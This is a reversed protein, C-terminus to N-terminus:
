PKSVLEPLAPAPPMEFIQVNGANLVAFRKGSPSLAFNGGGDLTPSAPLTLETKGDAVDFVRIVQGRIDSADLPMTANVPHSVDLTSLAARRGDASRAVMPWIRTPPVPTQWLVHKTRSMATMVRGGYDTCEMSLVLGPALAELSPNCTSDVPLLTQTNGEFTQFTLLWSRGDGRLAAYYGDGDLPLHRVNGVRSFLLVSRDKMRLIRILDQPDANKSEADAHSTSTQAASPGSTHNSESDPSGLSRASNKPEDKAPETSNAMLFQQDPGLELYNVPGPFRLFSKLHLSADGIQIDNRDRLLFTGDNLAWLYPGFDHLRWLDEAAVKGSPLNLVVARIHRENHLPDITSDEEHAGRHERSILGPVRFSFLLNDEDLFNLSVQTFRDGLYFAAPPAFGLPGAAITIAPAVTSMAPPKYGKVAPAGPVPPPPQWALPQGKKSEPSANAPTPSDPESAQQAQVLAASLLVMLVLGLGDRLGAM